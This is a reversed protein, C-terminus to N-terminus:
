ISPKSPVGDRLSKSYVNLIPDTLSSSSLAPVAGLVGTVTLSIRHSMLLSTFFLISLCFSLSSFFQESLGLTSLYTPCSNYATREECTERVDQEIWLIKYPTSQM